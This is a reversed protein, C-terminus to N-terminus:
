SSLKGRKTLSFFTSTFFYYDRLRNKHAFNFGDADEGASAIRGAHVARNARDHTRRNVAAHLYEADVAPIFPQNVPINLFHFQAANRFNQVSAPGNKIGRAAGFELGGLTLIARDAVALLETQLSDDNDASVPTKATRFIQRM